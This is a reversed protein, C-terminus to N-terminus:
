SQGQLWHMYPYLLLFLIMSLVLIDAYLLLLVGGHYFDWRRRLCRSTEWTGYVAALTPLVLLPSPHVDPFGALLLALLLSGMVVSTGRVLSRARINFVTYQM